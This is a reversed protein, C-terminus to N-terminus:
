SADFLRLGPRDLDRLLEEASILPSPRMPKM